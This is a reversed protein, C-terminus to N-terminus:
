STAKLAGIVAAITDPSAGNEITVKVGAVDLAIAGARRQLTRRPTRRRPPKVPEPQSAAPEPAIVAPVFAPLVQVAQRAERRWTFLQQPTLGHRRAVGCVSEGDLYSEAVIAAKAEATWSRQRGQGTFLEIRRVPESVYTLESISM